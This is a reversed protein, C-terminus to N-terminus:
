SLSSLRKLLAKLEKNEKDSNDYLAIMVIKKQKKVYAYILSLGSHVGRGKLSKCALTKVKIITATGSPHDVAFSFPPREDPMTRLIKKVVRLDEELSKYKKVLGKLDNRYEDLEEFKM